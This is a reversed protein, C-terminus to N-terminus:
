CSAGNQKEPLRLDLLITKGREKENKEREEHKKSKRGEGGRMKYSEFSNKLKHVNRM